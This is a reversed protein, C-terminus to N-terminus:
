KLLSFVLAFAVSILSWPRAARRALPTVRLLLATGLLLFGLATSPAMPIYKSRGSALIHWGTTWAILTLLGLAVTLASCGRAVQSCGRGSSIETVVVASAPESTESNPKARM